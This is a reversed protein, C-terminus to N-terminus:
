SKKGNAARRARALRAEEAEAIMRQAVAYLPDTKYEDVDLPAPIFHLFSVEGGTFAAIRRATVSTPRGGPVFGERCYRNILAVSVGLEAAVDKQKLAHAKLWERFPNM